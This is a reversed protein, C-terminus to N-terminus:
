SGACASAPTLASDRSRSSGERGSGGSAPPGGAASAGPGSATATGAQRRQSRTIGGFLLGLSLAVLAVLPLVRLWRRWAPVAV